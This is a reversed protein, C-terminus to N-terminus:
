PKEKRCENLARLLSITKGWNRWNRWKEVSEVVYRMTDYSVNRFYRDVEALIARERDTLRPEFVGCTEPDTAWEYHYALAHHKCGGDKGQFRCERCALPLPKPEGTAAKDEEHRPAIKYTIEDDAREKVAGLVAQLGHAHILDQCIGRLFGDEGQTITDGTEFVITYGIKM